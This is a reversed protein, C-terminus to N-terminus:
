HSAAKNGEACFPVTIIICMSHVIYLPDEAHEDKLISARRTTVLLLHAWIMILLGRQAIVFHKKWKMTRIRRCTKVITFHHIAMLKYSKSATGGDTIGIDDQLIKM